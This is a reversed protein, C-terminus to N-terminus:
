ASGTRLVAETASVPALPVRLEITTGRGPATEVFLECGLLRAREQMGVLGLGSGAATAMDFGRGADVVRIRLRDETADLVIRARGVGAHRAVNSLAEQVVRYAEATVAPELRRDDVEPATALEVDIGAHLALDRLAAVLGIQDLRAPRLRNALRRTEGLAEATLRRADELARDARTAPAADLRLTLATLIQGVGDHLELAIRRREDEQVTLLRDSARRFLDVYHRATATRRDAAWAVLGAIVFMLPWEAYELPEFPGGEQALAAYGTIVVAWAALRLFTPGLGFLFAQGVLLVFVCHFLFDPPLIRFPLLAAFGISALDLGLQIRGPKSTLADLHREIRGLRVGFGSRATPRHIATPRSNTM